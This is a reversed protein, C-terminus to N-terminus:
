MGNQSIGSVMILTQRDWTSSISENGWGLANQLTNRLTSRTVQPAAELKKLLRSDIPLGTIPCQQLWKTKSKSELDVFAGSDQLKKESRIAAELHPQVDPTPVAGTCQM